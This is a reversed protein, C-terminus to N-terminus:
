FKTSSIFSSFSYEIQYLFKQLQNVKEGSVDTNIIRDFGDVFFEDSFKERAFTVRIGHVSLSAINIPASEVIGKTPEQHLRFSRVFSDFM